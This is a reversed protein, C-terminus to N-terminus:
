ATWFMSSRRHIAEDVRVTLGLPLHPDATGGTGPTSTVKHLRGTVAAVYLKDTGGRGFAADDFDHM